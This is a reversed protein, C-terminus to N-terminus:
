AQVVEAVGPLSPPKPPASQDLKRTAATTEMTEAKREIM